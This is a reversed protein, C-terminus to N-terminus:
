LRSHRGHDIRLAAVPACAANPCLRRLFMPVSTAVAHVEEGARDLPFQYAVAVGDTIVAPRGEKGPRRVPLQHADVYFPSPTSNVGSSITIRSTSSRADIRTNSTLVRRSRCARRKVPARVAGSDHSAARLRLAAKGPDAYSRKGGPGAPVRPRLM